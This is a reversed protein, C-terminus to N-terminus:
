DGCGIERAFIKINNEWLCKFGELLGVSIKCADTKGNWSYM